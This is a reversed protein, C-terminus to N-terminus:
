LQEVLLGAEVNTVGELKRLAFLLGTRDEETCPGPRKTIFIALLGDDKGGMALGGLSVFGRAKFVADCRPLYGEQGYVKLHFGLEGAM